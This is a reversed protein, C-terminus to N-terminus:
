HQTVFQIVVGGHSELIVQSLDVKMNDELGPGTMNYVLTGSSPVHEFVTFDLLVSEAGLNSAVAYGPTGKLTRTFAVINETSNVFYIDGFKFADKHRLESCEQVVSGITKTFNEVNNGPIQLIPTGPVLMLSLTVGPMQGPSATRHNELVPEFKYYRWSDVNSELFEQFSGPINLDSVASAVEIMGEGVVIDQDGLAENLSRTLNLLQPNNDIESEAVTFGTINYTDKWFVLVKQLEADLEPEYYNLTLDNLNVFNSYSTNVAWAHYSKVPSSVFDTVGHTEGISFAELMALVKEAVYNPNLKYYDHDSILAPIYFSSVGLSSVLSVADSPVMTNVDIELMASEEMWSITPPPACGPARIVFWVALALMLVWSAWFLIMLFIRLRVWFPDKAFQMLEAKTLGRFEEENNPIAVKTHAIVPEEGKAGDAGENLLVKSSEEQPAMDGNPVGNKEEGM